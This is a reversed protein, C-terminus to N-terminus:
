DDKFIPPTFVEGRRSSWGNMSRKVGLTKRPANLTNLRQVSTVHLTKAPRSQTSQDKLDVVSQERIPEVAEEAEAELLLREPPPSSSLMVYAKKEISVDLTPRLNHIKLTTSGLRHNSLPPLVVENARPVDPTVTKAPPRFTTFPNTKKELPIIGQSTYEQNALIIGSKSKDQDAPAGPKSFYSLLSGQGEPRKATRTAAKRGASRGQLEEYKSGSVSRVMREKPKTTDAMCNVSQETLVQMHSGASVFGSKLTASATTFSASRSMTTSHESESRWSQAPYARPDENEEGDLRQRKPPRQGQTYHHGNWEVYKGEEEEDWEPDVVFL